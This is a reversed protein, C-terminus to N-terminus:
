HITEENDEYFDDFIENLEDNQERTMQRAPPSGGVNPALPSKDYEKSIHQWSETMPISANTITMIKDKPITVIYDETYNTWRILAIYDRIGTPTVQPVYKVQLPKILRLLANSEPLQNKTPIHCVIDDGNVLKVIKIETSVITM